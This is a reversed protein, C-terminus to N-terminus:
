QNTHAAMIYNTIDEVEQNCDYSLSESTLYELISYTPTLIITTTNNM